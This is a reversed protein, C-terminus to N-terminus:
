DQTQESWTQPTLAPLGFKLRANDCQRSIVGFEWSAAVDRCPSPRQSYITCRSYRGIEADLAICRPESQSTGKMSREHQRLPETLQVPVQGGQDPDAESWHFSVRYANCCAGCTLCPHPM